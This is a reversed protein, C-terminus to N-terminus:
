SVLTWLPFVYWAPTNFGSTSRADSSSLQSAAGECGGCWPAFGHLTRQVAEGNEGTEGDRGRARLGCRLLLLLRGRRGAHLPGHHHQVVLRLVRRRELLVVRFCMHRQELGVRLLDPDRTDLQDLERRGDIALRGREIALGIESEVRLFRQVLAGGGRPELRDRGIQRVESRAAHGDQDTL